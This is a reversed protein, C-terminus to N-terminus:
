FLTVDVNPSDGPNRPANTIFTRLLWRDMGNYTPTFSRRGHVVRSNDFVVLDGPQLVTPKQLDRILSVVREFSTQQAPCLPATLDADFRVRWVEDEKWLIPHPDTRWECSEKHEWYSEDVGTTYAPQQLADLTEASVAAVIEDATVFTTAAEPHHRLCLIAVHSPRNPHFGAETHLELDVASSTSTQRHANARVPVLNQVIDGGHEPLYGTPTGYIFATRLLDEVGPVTLPDVETPTAPTLPLNDRLAVRTITVPESGAPLGFAAAQAADLLGVTNGSDSKM